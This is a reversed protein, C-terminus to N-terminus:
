GDRHRRRVEEVVRGGIVHEEVIRRVDARLVGHYLASGSGGPRFSVFFYDEGPRMERVLVNVGKRCQGFCSQWDLRIERERPACRALEAVFAEHVAASGRREGCEPGRCVLVLTRPRSSQPPM